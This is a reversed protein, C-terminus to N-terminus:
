NCILALHFLLIKNFNELYYVEVKPKAFKDTFNKAILTTARWSAFIILYILFNFVESTFGCVGFDLSKYNKTTKGLM